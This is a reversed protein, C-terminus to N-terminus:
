TRVGCRRHPDFTEHMRILVGFGFLLAASNTEIFGGNVMRTADQLGVLGAGILPPLRDLGSGCAFGGVRPKPTAKVASPRCAGGIARPITVALGLRRQRSPSRLSYLGVPSAPRAM